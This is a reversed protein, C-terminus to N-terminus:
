WDESIDDMEEMLLEFARKQSEPIYGISVGVNCITLRILYGYFRDVSANLLTFSNLSVSARFTINFNGIRKTIYM